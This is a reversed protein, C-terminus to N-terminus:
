KTLFLPEYIYTNIFKSGLDILDSNLYMNTTYPIINTEDTDTIFLSDLDKQKNNIICIYNTM